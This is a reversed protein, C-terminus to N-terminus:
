DFKLLYMKKVIGHKIKVPPRKIFHYQDKVIEYTNQSVNIKMPKSNQEMRFAINISDGFLDYIYKKIGVVGGVAAGSHIGIRIKWKLDKNENRNKLFKIFNIAAEIANFAHNQNPEPIGCVAFYSDGITKVRECSHNEVINDFATYIENLENILVIESIFKAKESFEVFDAIIITINEFYEPKTFGKFHFDNIIKKPLVNELLQESKKKEKDIIIKAKNLEKYARVKQYYFVYLIIASILSLGLIIFLSNQKTKQKQIELEKIRKQNQLLRIEKDKKETEYRIRMETLQKTKEKNLISDKIVSHLESYKLAKQFKNQKIKLRKLESYIKRQLSLFGNTKTIKLGKLYFKEATDYQRLNLYNDAMYLYIEAQLWKNRNKNTKKAKEMYQEALGFKKQEYYIAGLEMYAIILHYDYSFDNLEQIASKYTDVAKGFQDREYHIKGLELFSMGILKSNQNKKSIELAKILNKISKSYEKRLHHAKGLSYYIKALGESDGESKEEEFAQLFFDKAKSYEELELYLNGMNILSLIRSDSKDIKNTANLSLHYYKLAKDYIDRSYFLNAFDNYVSSLKKYNKNKKYFQIIINFYDVAKIFENETSSILALTNLVTIEGEKNEINRFIELSRELLSKSVSLDSNQFGHLKALYYLLYGKLEKDEEATFDIIKKTTHIKNKLSLNDNKIIHTKYFELKQKDNKNAYLKLVSDTKNIASLYHNLSQAFLIILLFSILNKM